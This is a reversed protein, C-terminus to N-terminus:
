MSMTNVFDMWTSQMNNEPSGSGTRQQVYHQQLSNPVQSDLMAALGNPVGESAFMGSNGSGNAYSSGSLGYDYVPFYQPFNVDNKSGSIDMPEGGQVQQPSPVLGQNMLAQQQQAIYSDPETRFPTSMPQMGYSTPSLDPDSFSTSRSEFGSQRHRSTLTSYLDPGVGNSSSKFSDLYERLPQPLQNHMNPSLPLPVVPNNSIPSRDVLVPSSPEKKSVLRTKGGLVSLEDDDAEPSSPSNLSTSNYRSLPTGKGKRFEELSFHAKQQLHLMINQCRNDPDYSHEPNPYNLRVLVKNARFGAAAKSFLECASDLQVLASPALSM